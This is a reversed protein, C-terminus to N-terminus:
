STKQTATHAFVSFPLACLLKTITHAASNPLPMVDSKIAQLVGERAKALIDQDLYSVFRRLFLYATNNTSRAERENVQM